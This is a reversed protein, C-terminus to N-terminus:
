DNEKLVGRVCCDVWQPLSGSVADAGLSGAAPGVTIVKIGANRAFVSMEAATAMDDPFAGGRNGSFRQLGNSYMGALPKRANVVPMVNMRVIISRMLGAAARAIRGPHVPQVSELDASSM